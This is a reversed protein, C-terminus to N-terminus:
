FVYSQIHSGSIMIDLEYEKVPEFDEARLLSLRCEPKGYNFVYFKKDHTMTVGRPHTVKISHKLHNTDLDWFTIRGADPSTAAVTRTKNDVCVSLTEGVLKDIIKKPGFVGSLKKSKGGLTVGGVKGAGLGERPASVVAIDGNDAVAVHGANFKKNDIPLKDLLQQTNIDIYTVSGQEKEDFRGGANTVIMTSGDELLQCDHPRPGYSPFEGIEKLTKADRMIIAGDFNGETITEAAYIIKGDPSYAGHGYFQRNDATPIDRLKKGAVLDIECAGKGRKEFVVAKEPKKPHFALGHGFFPIPIFGVSFDPRDLDVTMVFNSITGPKTQTWQGGCQGIILGLEPKKSGSIGVGGFKNINSAKIPKKCDAGSITKGKVLLQTAM